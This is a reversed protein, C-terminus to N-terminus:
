EGGKGLIYALKSDAALEAQSPASIVSSLSKVFDSVKFATPLKPIQPEVAEEVVRELYANLSMSQQKAKYRARSLIDERFRIVTQTRTITEM